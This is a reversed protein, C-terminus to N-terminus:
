RGISFQFPMIIMERVLRGNISAPFFRLRPVTERVSKAFQPDTASQVRFTEMEAQGLTDVVFQAIVMGSIRRKLLSEPYPPFARNGPKPAVQKSVQFEFYVEDKSPDVMFRRQIFDTDTVTLLETTGLVFSKWVFTLRFTGATPANLTFGGTTDSTTEAFIKQANSDVLAVHVNPIRKEFKKDVVWGAVAQGRARVALVTAVVLVRAVGRCSCSMM